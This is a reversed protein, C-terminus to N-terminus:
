SPGLRVVVWASSLVKEGACRAEVAVKVRRDPLKAAVTARVDLVAGVADDPVPVPRAFRAFSEEPAAPDGAWDAVLGVAKAMSLMGHAIVSPFGAARAAADDLHIPNHDGSAAAYRRLDARTLACRLPPLATGEVLTEYEPRAAAPAGTGPDTM